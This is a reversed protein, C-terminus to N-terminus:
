TPTPAASAEVAIAEGAPAALHAPKHRQVLAFCVAGVLTIVITVTWLVPQGNLWGWYFNLLLETEDPTPNTAARPWAFNVLMGGGWALGLVSVPIGWRGLSFPAKTKPWGRLRDDRAM